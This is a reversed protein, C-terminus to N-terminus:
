LVGAADRKDNDEDSKVGNLRSALVEMHLDRAIQEADDLGKNYGRLAGFTFSIHLVLAGVTVALAVMIVTIM